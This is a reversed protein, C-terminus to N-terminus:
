NKIIKEMLPLTNKTFLEELYYERYIKYNNQSNNKRSMISLPINRIEEDQHNRNLVCRGLQRLLIHERKEKSSEEWVQKKVLVTIKPIRECSSVSDEFLLEKEQVMRVSISPSKYKLYKYHNKQFDHVMDLTEKQLEELTSAAFSAFSIFFLFLLYHKM